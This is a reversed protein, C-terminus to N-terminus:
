ARPHLSLRNLRLEGSEPIDREPFCNLVIGGMIGKKEAQAMVKGQIAALIALHACCLTRLLLWNPGLRREAYASLNKKKCKLSHGFKFTVTCGRASKPLNELSKSVIRIFDIMFLLVSVLITARCVYNTVLM